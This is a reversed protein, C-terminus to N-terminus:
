KSLLPVLIMVMVQPPLVAVKVTNNGEIRTLYRAYLGGMMNCTIVLAFLLAVGIRFVLPTKINSQKM